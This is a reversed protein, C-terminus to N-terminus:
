KCSEVLLKTMGCETYYYFNVVAINSNFRLVLYSRM